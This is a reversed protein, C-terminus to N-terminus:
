PLTRTRIKQPTLVTFAGFLNMGESELVKVLAKAMPLWDQFPYRLFLVGISAVHHSYILEGFDSDETILLANEIKARELVGLDSVGPTEELISIVIWGFKRLSHLIKGNVSEDALLKFM